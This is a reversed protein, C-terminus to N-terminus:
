ITSDLDKLADSDSIYTVDLNKDCNHHKCELDKVEKESVYLVESKEGALECKLEPLVDDIEGDYYSKLSKTQLFSKKGVIAVHLLTKLIGNEHLPEKRKMTVFEVVSKDCHFELLM